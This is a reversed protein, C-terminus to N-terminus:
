QYREGAVKRMGARIEDIYDLGRTRVVFDFQVEPPETGCEMLDLLSTFHPSQVRRRADFETAWSESYHVIFERDAWAACEQCGRELRTTATMQRLTEILEIADTPSAVHLAVSLRVM